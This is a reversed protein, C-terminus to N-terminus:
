RQIPAVRANVPQEGQVVGRGANCTAEGRVKPGGLLDNVIVQQSARLASSGLQHRRISRNELVLESTRGGLLRKALRRVLVHSVTEPSTVTTLDGEDEVPNVAGLEPNRAFSLSRQPEGHSRIPRVQGPRTIRVATTGPPGRRRGQRCVPRGPSGAGANRTGQQQQVGAIRFGFHPHQGDVLSARPALGEPVWVEPPGAPEVHCSRQGSTVASRPGQPGGTLLALALTPVMALPLALRLRGPPLVQPHPRPLPRRSRRAPGPLEDTAAAVPVVVFTRGDDLKSPVVLM